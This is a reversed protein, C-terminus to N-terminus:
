GHMAIRPSSLVRLQDTYYVFGVEFLCVFIIPHFNYGHTHCPIVSWKLKRNAYKNETCIEKKKEVDKGKTYRTIADM